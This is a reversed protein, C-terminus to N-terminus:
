NIATGGVTLKGSSNCAIDVYRYSSYYVRITSAHFMVPYSSTGVEFGTTSPTLVKSSLTLSYTGSKLATASPSDWKVAYNSSSSKTLVQGTTGGTPLTGEVDVSPTGWTLAYNSASSKMLCQGTSGGTPILGITEWSAAYDTASTKKLFQGSTGGKPLTGTNSIDAWAVAYDASSTKKLFQGDTGGKPLIGIPDEWKVDYDTSTSKTLIQGATGGTPLLANKDQNSITEWKVAYDEQTDKVLSQGPTGGSPIGVLKTQLPAGVVYEVVYTGSDQCIKVRDGPQFWIITNTKYHKETAEEQGDFILSVGDEFLEAITAFNFVIGQEKESM